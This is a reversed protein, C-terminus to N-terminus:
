FRLGDLTVSQGETPITGLLGFMLGGVTNWRERPLDTELADNLEHISMSADVRWRGNGLDVVDPEEVDHEDAIEGVLEELLDELTVLGSTTGYEDVVFALHFQERQMERLLDAAKKSQPIFH